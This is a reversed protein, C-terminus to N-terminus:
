VLPWQQLPQYSVGSPTSISRYLSFSTISVKQNIDVIDVSQEPLFSAKRYISVHPLYQRQEQFLGQAVATQSLACALETLWDPCSKSTLFLVKPKKFHGVKNLIFDKINTNKVQLCLQNAQQILALKQQTSTLGLFALTIHFNDSPIIKYPLNLNEDRWQAILKKDSNSLDLAFFLRENM